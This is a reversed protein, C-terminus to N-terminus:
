AFVSSSSPTRRITEGRSLAELASISSESSCSAQSSHITAPETSCTRSTYPSPGRLCPSCPSFIPVPAFQTLLSLFFSIETEETREQEEDKRGSGFGREDGHEGHRRPSDFCGPM